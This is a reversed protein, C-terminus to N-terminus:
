LRGARCHARSTSYRGGERISIDRWNDEIHEALYSAVVYAGGTM